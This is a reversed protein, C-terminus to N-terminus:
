PEASANAASQWIIQVDVAPGVVRVQVAALPDIEGPMRKPEGIVVRTDEAPSSVCEGIKAFVNIGGDFQDVTSQCEIRAKSATPHYATPEPQPGPLRFERNAM